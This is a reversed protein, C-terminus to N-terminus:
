KRQKLGEILSKLSAVKTFAKRLFERLEREAKGQAVVHMYRTLNCLLDSQLIQYIKEIKEESGQLFLVIPSRSNIDSIVGMLEERGNEDLVWKEGQKMKPRAIVESILGDFESIVEDVFGSNRLGDCEFYTDINRTRGCVKYSLFTMKSGASLSQAVNDKSSSAFLSNLDVQGKLLAMCFMAVVNIYLHSVVEGENRPLIRVPMNGGEYPFKMLGGGKLFGALCGPCVFLPFVPLLLDWINDLLPSEINNYKESIVNEVDVLFKYVLHVPSADEDYPRDVDNECMGLYDSRLKDLLGLDSFGNQDWRLYIVEFLDHYWELVKSSSNQVPAEIKETILDALQSCFKKFEAGEDFYSDIPIPTIKKGRYESEKWKSIDDGGVWYCITKDGNPDKDHFNSIEHKCHTSDLYGGSCFAIFVISSSLACDVKVPIEDGENIATDDFFIELGKLKGTMVYLELHRVLAHLLTVPKREKEGLIRADKWCHSIFITNQAGMLAKCDAKWSDILGYFYNSYGNFYLEFDFIKQNDLM